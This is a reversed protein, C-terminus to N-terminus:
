NGDVCGFIADERRKALLDTNRIDSFVLLALKFDRLLLTLRPQPKIRLDSAEPILIHKQEKKRWLRM